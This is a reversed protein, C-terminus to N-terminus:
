KPYQSIIDYLQLKKKIIKGKEPKLTVEINMDGGEPSSNEYPSFDGVEIIQYPKEDIRFFKWMLADIFFQIIANGNTPM